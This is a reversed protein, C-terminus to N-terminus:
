FYDVFNDLFYGCVQGCFQGCFQECFQGRFIESFKGEESQVIAPIGFITLLITWFIDM